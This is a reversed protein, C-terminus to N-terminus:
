WRTTTPVVQYPFTKKTYNEFENGCTFSVCVFFFCGVVFRRDFHIYTLIYISFVYVNSFTAQCTFKDQEFKSHWDYWKKTITTTRNDIAFWGLRHHWCWIRTNSWSLFKDCVCFSHVCFCWFCCCCYFRLKDIKSNSNERSLIKMYRKCECVCVFMGLSFIYKLRSTVIRLQIRVNTCYWTLTM